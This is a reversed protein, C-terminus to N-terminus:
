VRDAGGGFYKELAELAVLRKNGVACYSVKGTHLARRIATETVSTGPDQTKFYQAAARPTRMRPLAAKEINDQM